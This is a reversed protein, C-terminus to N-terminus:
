CYLRGKLLHLDELMNCDIYQLPFLFFFKLSRLYNFYSFAHVKISLVGVQTNTSGDAVRVGNAKPPESIRLPLVNDGLIERVPRVVPPSSSEPDKPREPSRGELKSDGDSIRRDEFKRGNGFRDDRRWDNIVEPRTPSTRRYDGFQRNEQENGPSREDYGYRSNKDDSRGGPSSQENYRREYTDEYPPSRSGGQYTDRRIDYSDEKDGQM